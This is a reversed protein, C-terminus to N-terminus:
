LTPGAINSIESLCVCARVLRAVRVTTSENIESIESPCGCTGVVFDVSFLLVTIELIELPCGCAGILVAVGLVEGEPDCVDPDSVEMDLDEVEGRGLGATDSLELTGPLLVVVDCAEAEDDTIEDGDGLTALVIGSTIDVGYTAEVGVCVGSVGDVVVVVVACFLVSVVVGRRKDVTGGIEVTSVGSTIAGSVGDKIELGIAGPTSGADVSSSGILSRCALSPYLTFRLRRPVPPIANTHM